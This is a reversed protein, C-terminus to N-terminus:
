PLVRVESIGGLWDSATDNVFVFRIFQASTPTDLVIWGDETVYALTPDLDIWEVNDSSV